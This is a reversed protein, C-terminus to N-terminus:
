DVARSATIELTSTGTGEAEALLLRIFRYANDYGKHVEKTTADTTLTDCLRWNIRDVSGYLSVTKSGAISKAYIEIYSRNGIDMNMDPNAQPNVTALRKHTMGSQTIPSVAIHSIAYGTVITTSENAFFPILFDHSSAQPIIMEGVLVYNGAIFQSFRIVPPDYEFLYTSWANFTMGATVNQATPVASITGDEGMMNCLLTAVGNNLMVMAIAHGGQSVVEFGFLLFGTIPVTAITPLFCTIRMRARKYCKRIAFYIEDVTVGDKSNDMNIYNNWPAADLGAAVQNLEINPLTWSSEPLGAESAWVSGMRGQYKEFFVRRRSVLDTLFEWREVYPAGESINWYPFSEPLVQSGYRRGSSM